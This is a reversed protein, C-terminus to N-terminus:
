CGKGIKKGNCNPCSAFKDAFVKGCNDCTKMGVGGHYVRVNYSFNASDTPM